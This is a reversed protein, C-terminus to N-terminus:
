NSYSLRNLTSYFSFPYLPNQQVLYTTNFLGPWLQLLADPKECAPCSSLHEKTSERGEGWVREAGSDKEEGREGASDREGGRREKWGWYGKREKKREKQRQKVSKRM